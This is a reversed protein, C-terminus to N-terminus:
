ACLCVYVIEKAEGDGGREHASARARARVSACENSISMIRTHIHNFPKKYGYCRKCARPSASEGKMSDKEGDAATLAPTVLLRTKGEKQTTIAAATPSPRTDNM